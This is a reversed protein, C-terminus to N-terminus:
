IPWASALHWHWGDGHFDRVRHTLTAAVAIADKLRPGRPADKLLSDV